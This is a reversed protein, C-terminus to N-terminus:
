DSLSRILEQYAELHHWDEELLTSSSRRCIILYDLSELVLLSQYKKGSIAHLCFGAVLFLQQQQLCYHCGM